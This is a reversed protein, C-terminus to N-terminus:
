KSEVTQGVPKLERALAVLKDASDVEAISGDPVTGSRALTNIVDQVSTLNKIRSSLANVIDKAQLATFSGDYIVELSQSGDQFRVSLNTADSASSPDEEDADVTAIVTAVVEPGSVHRQLGGAVRM